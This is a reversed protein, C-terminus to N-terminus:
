RSGRTPRTGAARRAPRRSPMGTTTSLSVLAAASLRATPPALDAPGHPREGVEVETRPQARAQHDAALTCRPPRAAGALEPVLDELEVARRAAAAPAAADLRQAQGRHRAAVAVLRRAHEAHPRPSGRRAARCRGRGARRGYPPRRAPRTRARRRPCGRRGPRAPAPGHGDRYLAPPLPPDRLPRRLQHQRRHEPPSRSRPSRSRSPGPLRRSRPSGGGGFVTRGQVPSSRFAPRASPTRGANPPAGARRIGAGQGRVAGRRQDLASGVGGPADGPCM